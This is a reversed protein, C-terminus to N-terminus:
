CCEVNFMKITMEGQWFNNKYELEGFNIKTM